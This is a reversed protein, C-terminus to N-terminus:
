LKDTQDRKKTVRFVSFKHNLHGHVHIKHQSGLGGDERPEMYFVRRIRSHLLGMACMVCPERTLYADLGTCLYGDGETEGRADTDVLDAANGGNKSDHTQISADDDDLDESKRKRTVTTDLHDRKWRELAAVGEIALMAAHHLPHVHRGDRVLAVQQNTKPNVICAAVSLSHTPNDSTNHASAFELLKDFRNEMELLEANTFTVPLEKRPEHFNMPWVLKWANLQDKTFAPHKPVAVTDLKSLNMGFGHEKLLSLIVAAEDDDAEDSALKVIVVLDNTQPNKKIRKLHQLSVPIPFLNALVKISANATAPEISATLVQVTEIDRTWEEALVCAYELM